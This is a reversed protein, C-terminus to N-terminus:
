DTPVSVEGERLRWLRWGLWVGTLVVALALPPVILDEIM